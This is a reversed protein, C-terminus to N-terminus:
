RALVIFWGAWGDRRAARDWILLPRGSPAEFSRVGKWVSRGANGTGVIRPAGPASVALLVETGAGASPIPLVQDSALNIRHLRVTRFPEADEVGRRVQEVAGAALATEFSDAGDGAALRELLKRGLEPDDAALTHVFDGEPLPEHVVPESQVEEVSPEDVVVIVEEVVPEEIPDIAEATEGGEAGTPEVTDHSEVVEVEIVLPDDGESAVAADPTTEMEDSAEADPDAPADMVAVEVEIADIAVDGESTEEGASLMNPADAGVEEQGGDEAVRPPESRASADANRTPGSQCGGMTLVMAVVGFLPMASVMQQKFM